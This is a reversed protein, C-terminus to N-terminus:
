LIRFGGGSITSLSTLPTPHMNLLILDRAYQDIKRKKTPVNKRSSRRLLVTAEEPTITKYRVQPTVDSAM